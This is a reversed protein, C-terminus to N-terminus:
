EVPKYGTQDSQFGRYAGLTVVEAPVEAVGLPSVYEEVALSGIALAEAPPNLGENAHTIINPNTPM